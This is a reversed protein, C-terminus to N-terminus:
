KNEEYYSELKIGTCRECTCKNKNEYDKVCQELTEYTPRITIEDMDCKCTKIFMRKGNPIMHQGNYELPEGCSKCTIEFAQIMKGFDRSFKAKMKNRENIDM